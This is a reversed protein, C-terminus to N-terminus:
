AHAKAAGAHTDEHHAEHHELFGAIYSCTLATFVYAQLVGTFVCFLTLPVHLPVAALFLLIALLHLVKDEGGINGFLRVARSLPRALEGIIHIPINLPAMWVPEGVFHMLYSKLGITRIAVVHVYVIAVLALAVTTNLGTLKDEESVGIPSLLGPVIGLWNAVTIFIFLTAIFPAHAAGAPGMAGITFNRLTEVVLEMFGALDKRPVRALRKKTAVSLVVLGICLLWTM